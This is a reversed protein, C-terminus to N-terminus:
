TSGESCCALLVEMGRNLLEFEAPTLAHQGAMLSQVYLVEVGTKRLSRDSVLALRQVVPNAANLCLRTPTLNQPHPVLSELIEGWLGSAISKTRDVQRHFEADSGLAFFASVSAPQYRRVVLEAGRDSLVEPGIDLLPKFRDLDEIEPWQEVMDAADFAIIELGPTQAAGAVLLEEHYTYGGNFIRISGALAVSELRRYQEATRALLLREHERRFEGFRIRGLTTEFDLLDIILGLFEADKVALGRIETDHVAMVADFRDRDNRMLHVLRGRVAKAIEDSAAELRADEHIAERSATLGLGTSNLICGVFTAWNPVLDSVGEGVFMGSAYLHSKSAWSSSRDPRIFGFGEVGGAPASIPFIDIPRFGLSDQCLDSLTVDDDPAIRWAPIERNVSTASGECVVTIPVPLMQGFRRALEVLRDLEFYEELGAKAVLYVTTGPQASGVQLERVSYTGDSRGRWEVAQHPPQSASASRSVVVIEDTVMFCSLLGIGFRGLYGPNGPDVSPSGGDTGALREATSEAEERKSSGGVTSLFTQVEEMTLGVGDDVVSITAPRTEAGDAGAASGPVLEIRVAGRHNPDFQRRATIADVANQIVERVFVDPSSYLHNATLDIIGRLDVKFRESM